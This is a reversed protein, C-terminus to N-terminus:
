TPLSIHPSKMFKWLTVRFRAETRFYILPCCVDSDVRAYTALPNEALTYFWGMLFPGHMDTLFSHIHVSLECWACLSFLLRPCLCSLGVARRQLPLLHMHDANPSKKHITDFACVFPFLVSINPKTLVKFKRM